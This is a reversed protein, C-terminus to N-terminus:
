AGKLESQLEKVRAELDRLTEVMEARRKNAFSDVKKVEVLTIDGGGGWTWFKDLGVAYEIVDVLTGDVVGLDPQYHNGGMDCNPDEGRIRWLGTETLPYKGLLAKGSYTNRFRELASQEIKTM